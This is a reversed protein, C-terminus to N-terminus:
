IFWMHTYIQKRKRRCYKSRVRLKRDKNTNSFPLTIANCFSNIFVKVLQEAIAVVVVLKPVLTNSLKRSLKTFELMFLLQVDTHKDACNLKSNNFLRHAYLLVLDATYHNGIIQFALVQYPM